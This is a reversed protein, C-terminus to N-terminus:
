ALQGDDGMTPRAYLATLDLHAMLLDENSQHHLSYQAASGGSGRGARCMQEYAARQADTLSAPHPSQVVVLDSPDKIWAHYERQTMRVRADMEVHRRRRKKARAKGKARAARKRKNQNEPSQPDDDEVDEVDEEDMTTDNLGGAAAAGAMGSEDRSLSMGSIGSQNLSSHRQQQQQGDRAEEDDDMTMNFDEEDDDQPPPIFGDDDDDNVKALLDSQQTIQTGYYLKLSRRCLFAVHL